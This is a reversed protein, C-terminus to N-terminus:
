GVGEAFDCAMQRADELTEATWAGRGVGMWYGGLTINGDPMMEPCQLALAVGDTSNAIKAQYHREGVWVRKNENISQRGISQRSEM